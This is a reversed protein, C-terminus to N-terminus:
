FSNRWFINPFLKKCDFNKWYRYTSSEFIIRSITYDKLNRKINKVIKEVGDDSLQDPDKQNWPQHIFLEENLKEVKKESFYVIRLPFDEDLYDFIDFMSETVRLLGGNNITLGYIIM